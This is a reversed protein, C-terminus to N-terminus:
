GWEEMIEEAMIKAAVYPPTNDRTARHLVRACNDFTRAVDAMAKEPDFGPGAQTAHIAGGASAVYDPVITIGREHLLDGHRMRALQNNAGGCIIRCNLRPISEDDFVAGLACPALVDVHQYLIEDNPVPTAGFETVARAVAEENLDAVFIEAGASKLHTCLARGVNGVGQVAVKLGELSEKGDVHFVAALMARYVGFGTAPSTDGTEGPLGRVHRTGQRVSVMDDSTTGVDPGCHYRGRFTEVARGFAEMLASTKDKQPDGIIVSKGGGIPIHAMAFKYSMARSLRLADTVADEENEYPQMRIGGGAGRPGTKHIAIVARLGTEPDHVFSLQEHSRFEPSDFVM